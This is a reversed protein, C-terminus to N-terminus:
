VELTSGKDPRAAWSSALSLSSLSLSSCSLFVYFLCLGVELNLTWFTIASIQWTAKLCPQWPLALPFSPRQRPARCNQFRSVFLNTTTKPVLRAPVETTETHLGLLGAAGERLQMCVRAERFGQNEGNRSKRLVWKEGTVSVRNWFGLTKTAAKQRKRRSNKQSGGM